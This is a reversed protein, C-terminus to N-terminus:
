KIAARITFLGGLGIATYLTNEIDPTIIGIRGLIFIVAGILALLYTRKGRLFTM